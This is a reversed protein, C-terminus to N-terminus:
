HWKIVISERQFLGVAIKLVLFDVVAIGLSLALTLLPTFWVIGTVQVAILAFVPLIVFLILNQASKADRAQSSGIVGLLFSLLAIVPNLLFFTLYWSPTLVLTILNGWGMVAVGLFFIAACVWCVLIAPIAGSLAKGLLLEWTRVPTALLPELSHSQKEEIISFTAFSIAIMTPILLLFFRFQSLLLVQFQQAAPLSAAAPIEAMLKSIASQILSSSIISEGGFRNALWMFVLPEAIVLLPILSVFLINNLDKFIVEWEKMLINRIRQGTV